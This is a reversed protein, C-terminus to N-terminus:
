RRCWHKQLEPLQEWPPRSNLTCEAREKVNYQQFYSAKQMVNEESSSYFDSLSLFVTLSM